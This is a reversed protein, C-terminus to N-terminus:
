EEDEDEFGMYDRMLDENLGKALNVVPVSTPYFSTVPKDLLSFMSRERGYKAETGTDKYRHYRINVRRYTDAADAEFLDLGEKGYRAEYEPVWFRKLYPYGWLPSFQLQTVFWNLSPYVGTTKYITKASLAALSLELVSTPVLTSARSLMTLTPEPKRRFSIHVVCNGHKHTAVRMSYGTETKPPTKTIRELWTTYGSDLYAACFKPWRTAQFGFRGFDMDPEPKEVHFFANNTFIFHSKKEHILDPNGVMYQHVLTEVLEACGQTALSFRKPLMMPEM